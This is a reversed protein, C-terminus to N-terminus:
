RVSLFRIRYTYASQDTILEFCNSFASQDNFGFELAIDSISSGSTTLDGIAAHIRSAITSQQITRGFHFATGDEAWM